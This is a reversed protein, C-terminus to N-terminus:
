FPELLFYPGEGHNHFSWLPENHASTSSTNPQTVGADPYWLISIVPWSQSAWSWRRRVVGCVVGCLKNRIFRPRKLRWDETKETDNDRVLSVARLSEPVRPWCLEAPAAFWSPNNEESMMQWPLLCCRRTDDGDRFQPATDLNFCDSCRPRPLSSCSGPTRVVVLRPEPCLKILTKQGQQCGHCRSGAPSTSFLDSTILTDVEARTQQWEKKEYMKFMIGCSVARTM